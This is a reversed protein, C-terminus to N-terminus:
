SKPAGPVCVAVTVIASPSTCGITVTPAVSAAADSTPASGPVNVNVRVPSRCTANATVYVTAVPAPVAAFLPDVSKVGNRLPDTVIGTFWVVAVTVTVGTSSASTSPGSVTVTM